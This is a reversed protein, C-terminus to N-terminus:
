LYISHVHQFHRPQQYYVLLFYAFFTPSSEPYNKSLQVVVLWPVNNMHRSLREQTKFLIDYVYEQSIIVSHSLTIFYLIPTVKMPKIMTRNDSIYRAESCCSMCASLSQRIYTTPDLNTKIMLAMESNEWM